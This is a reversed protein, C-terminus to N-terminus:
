EGETKDAALQREHFKLEIELLNRTIRNMREVNCRFCWHPSWATGAPHICGPEVCIGGTHHKEGNGPDNPDDYSM